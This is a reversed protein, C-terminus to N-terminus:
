SLELCISHILLVSKRVKVKWKFVIEYIKSKLDYFVSKMTAYATFHQYVKM